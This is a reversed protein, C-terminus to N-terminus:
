EDLRAQKDTKEQGAIRQKDSGADERSLIDNRQMPEKQRSDQAGDNAVLKTVPNAAARTGSKVFAIIGEKEATTMQLTSAVEVFFIAAAGHNERTKHGNNPSEARRYSTGRSHGISSVEGEINKASGEPDAAHNQAAIKQTRADGIDAFIKMQYDASDNQKRNQRWDDAEKARAAGATVSGM